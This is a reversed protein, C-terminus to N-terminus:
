LALADLVRRQRNIAERVVARLERLRDTINSQTPTKDCGNEPESGCLNDAAQACMARLECSLKLTEELVAPVSEGKPVTRVSGAQKEEYM